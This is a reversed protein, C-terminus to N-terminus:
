VGRGKDDHTQAQGVSQSPTSAGLDAESIRIKEVTVGHRALIQGAEAVRSAIDPRLRILAVVREYAQRASTTLANQLRTLASKAPFDASSKPERLGRQRLAAAYKKRLKEKQPAPLKALMVELLHDINEGKVAAEVARAVIQDIDEEQHKNYYEEDESNGPM